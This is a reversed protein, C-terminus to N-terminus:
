IFLYTIFYYVNVVKLFMKKGISFCYYYFLFVHLLLYYYYFEVVVLLLLLLLLLMHAGGRLALINKIGAVKADELHKTIAEKSLNTSTLHLMTELSCFNLAASAISISSTEHDTNHNSLAHWTVDCFLPGGSFMRDFRNILNVAGAPTRPPFFELSFFRENSSIKSQLLFYLKFKHCWSACPLRPGDKPAM